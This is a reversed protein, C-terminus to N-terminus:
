MFICVYTLYMDYCNEIAEVQKLRLHSLTSSFNDIVYEGPFKWLFKKCFFLDAVRRMGISSERAKLFLVWM